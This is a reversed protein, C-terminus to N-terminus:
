MKREAGSVSAITTSAKRPRSPRISRALTARARDSTGRRATSAKNPFSRHSTSHPERTTTAARHPPPSLPPVFLSFFIPTLPLAHLRRFMNQSRASSAKPVEPATYPLLLRLPRLIPHHTAYHAPNHPSPTHTNQTHPARPHPAGPHPAGPTRPICYCRASRSAPTPNLLNSRM